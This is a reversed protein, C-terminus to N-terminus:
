QTLQLLLLVLFVLRRAPERQLVPSFELVLARPMATLAFDFHSEQCRKVLSSVAPDSQEEDSARTVRLNAKECAVSM